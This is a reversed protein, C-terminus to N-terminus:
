FSMGGNDKKYVVMPYKVTNEERKRREAVYLIGALLVNNKEYAYDIATKGSEDKKTVDAGRELM